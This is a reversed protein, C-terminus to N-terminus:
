QRTKLYKFTVHIIESTFHRIGQSLMVAKTLESIDPMTGYTNNGFTKTLVGKIVDEVVLRIAVPNHGLYM